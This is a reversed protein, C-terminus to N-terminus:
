NSKTFSSFSQTVESFKKGDFACTEQKTFKEDMGLIQGPSINFQTRVQFTEAHSIRVGGDGTPSFHHLSYSDLSNKFFRVQVKENNETATNSIPQNNQIKGCLKALFGSKSTQVKTEFPVDENDSTFGLNGNASSLTSNIKFSEKKGDCNLSDISFAFSGGVYPQTKLNTDKSQYAYCIRTAIAREEPTLNRVASMEADTTYEILPDKTKAGPSCSVLAALASASLVFFLPTGYKM